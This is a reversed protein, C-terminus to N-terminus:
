KRASNATPAAAVEKNAGKITFKFAVGLKQKAFIIYRLAESCIKDLRELELTVANARQDRAQELAEELFRIGAPNLDGVLALRAVGGSVEVVEATFAIAAPLLRVQVKIEPRNPLLNVIGAAADFNEYPRGDIWVGGIKVSGAPLIDPFVRLINDAFGGPKPKFYLDMPELTILLNTYIAALYALEFSHYGSMSHSGKYRETGLAYPQGNALVNFHVSGDDVDLFWTNYFASSERALRLYEPMKLVGALLLYALIGQEQQWWAKRDHWAFRHFKEGPALVREIVDYWGGRQKDMGVQPMLGAIREALQLYSDKNKLSAMRMLNWAIKLNHGVVARNQQWGWTQDKSWDEFFREQVCPSENYDPFHATITDFM